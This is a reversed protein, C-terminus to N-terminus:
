GPADGGPAVATAAAAGADAAAAVVINHHDMALRALPAGADHDARQQQVQHPPLLAPSPNYERYLGSPATRLTGNLSARTLMADVAHARDSPPLLAGRGGRGGGRKNGLEQRGQLGHRSQRSSCNRMVVGNGQRRRLAPLVGNVIAEM